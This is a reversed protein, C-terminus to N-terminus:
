ESGEWVAPECREVDTLRVMWGGALVAQDLLQDPIREITWGHRVARDRRIVRLNNGDRYVCTEATDGGPGVVDVCEAVVGSAVVCGPHLPVFEVRSPPREIAIARPEDHGIEFFWNLGAPPQEPLKEGAVIQVRTGADLRDPSVFWEVLMTQSACDISCCGRNRCGSRCGGCDCPKPVSALAAAVPSVLLTTM